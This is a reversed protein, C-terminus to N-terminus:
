IFIKETTIFQRIASKGYEVSKFFPKIFHLVSVDFILTIRKNKLVNIQKEVNIRDSKGEVRRFSSNIM